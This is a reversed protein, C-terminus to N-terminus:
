RAVLANINITIPAIESQRQPPQQKAEIVRDPKPLQPLIIFLLLALAAAIVAFRAKQQQDFGKVFTMHLYSCYCCWLAASHMHRTGWHFLGGWGLYTWALGTLQTISYFVFGWIAYRNFLPTDVQRRLFLIALWGSLIFCGTALGEFVFFLHATWSPTFPNPHHCAPPWLVVPVILASLPILASLVVQRHKKQQYWLLIILSALCWPLFFTANFVGELSFYDYRWCRSLQSLTHISWGGTITRIALRESNLLYCGLSALYFGAAIQFLLTYIPIEILPQFM